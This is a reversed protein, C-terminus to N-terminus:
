PFSDKLRDLSKWKALCDPCVKSRPILTPKRQPYLLYGGCVIEWIEHERDYTGWPLHYVKIEGFGDREGIVRCRQEAM